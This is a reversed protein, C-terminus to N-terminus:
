DDNEDRWNFNNYGLGKLFSYYIAQLIKWRIDYNGKLADATINHNFTEYLREKEEKTMKEYTWSKEIMTIFNDLADSKKNM